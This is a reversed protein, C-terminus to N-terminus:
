IVSNVDACIPSCIHRYQYIQSLSINVSLILMDTSGYKATNPNILNWKKMSTWYFSYSCMLVEAGVKVFTSLEIEAEVQMIPPQM